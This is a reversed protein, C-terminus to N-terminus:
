RLPTRAPPTGGLDAAVCPTALCLVLSWWIPQVALPRGMIQAPASPVVAGTCPRCRPAFTRVSSSPVQQLRTLVTKLTRAPLGLQASGVSLSTSRATDRPRTMSGVSPELLVNAGCLPRSEERTDLLEFEQRALCDRAMTSPLPYRTSGPWSFRAGTFRNEARHVPVGM